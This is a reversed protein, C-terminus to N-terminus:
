VPRHSLPSPRLGSRSGAHHAEQLTRELTGMDFPKDLMASAGLSLGEAALEVTGYATMVVIVARPALRRIARLLSYDECDPLQLDLLVIDFADSRATLEGIAERADAAQTVLHGADALTESASWRILLEDEVILIRLSPTTM